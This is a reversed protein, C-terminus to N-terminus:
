SKDVSIAKTRHYISAEYFERITGKNLESECEELLKKTKESCRNWRATEKKGHEASLAYHETMYGGLYSTLKRLGRVNLHEADIFDQSVNIGTEEFAKDLNLYDYGQETILDGIESLASSDSQVAQHPFCVFLVNKLGKEKCFDLLEVLEKRATDGFSTQMVQGMGAGNNCTSYTRLGKTCSYGTWNMFTGIGAKKALTLPKKWNGHYKIMPFLYEARKEEPVVSGIERIKELSFPTYDFWKHMSGWDSFSDEGWYFGSINFVVLKPKQRKLIETLMSRYLSGPVGSIALNYSTYGYESWALTPSYDAYLESPGAMVVDLSNRKEQYFGKVNTYCENENYIFLREAGAFLLLLIVWFCCIRCAMRGKKGIRKMNRGKQIIIRQLATGM